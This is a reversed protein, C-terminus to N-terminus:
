ATPARQLNYARQMTQSVPGGRAIDRTVVRLVLGEADFKPQVDAVQQQTGENHMEVRVNMAGSTAAVPAMARMQEQTFVGEGKKAIIPMEDGILGGTHFRPAGAFIAPSARVMALSDYGLVGGTHAQGYLPVDSPSVPSSGYPGGSGRSGPPLFLDVVGAMTRQIQIQILMQVIQEGYAKWDAKGHMLMQTLNSAMGNLATGWVDRAQQASNRATDVFDRFTQTTGYNYSREEATRRRAEESYFTASEVRAKKMEAIRLAIEDRKAGAPAATYAAQQEAIQREFQKRADFDAQAAAADEPSMLRMSSRLDRQELYIAKQAEHEALLKRTVDKETKEEGDLRIKRVNQQLEAERIILDRKTAIDLQKRLNDLKQADTWKADTQMKLAGIEDNAAAVADVVRKDNLKEIESTYDQESILGYRHKEDLIRQEGNAAAESLQQQRRFASVAESDRAQSLQLAERADQPRLTRLSARKKADKPAVGATDPAIGALRANEGAMTPAYEAALRQAREMAMDRMMQDRQSILGRLFTNGALASGERNAPNFGSASDIQQNLQDLQQQRSPALGGSYNGNFLVGHINAYGVPISMVLKVFDRVSDDKFFERMETLLGKLPGEMDHFSDILVGQFNNKVEKWLNQVEGSMAKVFTDLTGSSKDLEARFKGFEDTLDSVLTTASKLGRVDFVKAFITNLSEDDYGRVKGMFDGLAERSDRRSGDGNYANFKLERQMIRQGEASTPTYLHQFMRRSLTGAEENVIGQKALMGVVALESNLDVGYLKNIGSAARLSKMISDVSAQTKSATYSIADGIKGVDAVSLGYGRMIAILAESAGALETEGQQAVKTAVPLVRLADAAGVGAQELVRLGKALELPGYISDTGMKVLEGRIRALEDASYGGLAGTFATQYQFDSGTQVTNKVLSGAAYGGVLAPISQGYTLFLSDSAGALGRAASRGVGAQQAATRRALVGREAAAARDMALQERLAEGHAANVERDLERQQRATTRALELQEAATAQMQQRIQNSARRAEQESPLGLILRPDITRGRAASMADFVQQRVRGAMAAIRQADRVERMSQKQSAEESDKDIEELAQKKAARQASAAKKVEDTQRSLSQTMARTSQEQAKQLAEIEVRTTALAARLERVESELKATGTGTGALGALAAKLENAGKTLAQFAALAEPARVKMTLTPSTGSM